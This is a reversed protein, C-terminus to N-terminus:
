QRMERERETLSERFSRRAFVDDMYRQIPQGPAGLEIEYLPLRWLIPSISADLLSFEDGLFYRRASFVEASSLISEKLIKRLQSLQRKDPGAQIESAVGYWDQEIRYLALRFQARSVPDVPMLPPHPFREDLYDIIVRSDYLVLDRDILTPLSQYPNVHILDEPLADDTVSIVDIGVGKEALVIRTRHSLFCVPDSYLTM